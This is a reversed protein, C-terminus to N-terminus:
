RLARYGTYAAVIAAGAIAAYAVVPEAGWNAVVIGIAAWVVTAGYVPMGPRRSTITLAVVIAIGLMVLAANLNSLIGYGALIVGTSVASAATLWGAFIALPAALLWRDLVPDALLYARIALAAMLIITLTALLPYSGAIALWAAGLVAAGLLPLAPTVFHRAGFRKFLGFSAHAILWLYIVGWISFAYGAPQIAAREIRVPFMGPDYGTFPPTVAPAIVFAITAALLAPQTLNKM